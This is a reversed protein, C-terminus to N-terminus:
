CCWIMRALFCYSEEFWPLISYVINLLVVSVIQSGAAPNSDSDAAKDVFEVNM